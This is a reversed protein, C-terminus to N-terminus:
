FFSCKIKEKNEKGEFQALEHANIFEIATFKWNKELQTKLDNDFCM